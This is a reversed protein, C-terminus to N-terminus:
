DCYVSVTLSVVVMIGKFLIEILYIELGCELFFNVLDGFFTINKVTFGDYVERPASEM